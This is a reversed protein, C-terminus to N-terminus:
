SRQGDASVVDWALRLAADISLRAGNALEHDLTDASLTDVLQNLVRQCGRTMIPEGAGGQEKLHRQYAGILRAAEVSARVSLAYKATPVFTLTRPEGSLQDRVVPIAARLLDAAEGHDDTAVACYLRAPAQIRAGAGDTDTLAARFMTLAEDPHGVRDFAQGAAVYSSARLTPSGLSEALDLLVPIETRIEPEAGQAGLAILLPHYAVIKATLDIAAAVGRRGFEVALETDGNALHWNSM